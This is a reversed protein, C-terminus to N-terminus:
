TNHFRELESSVIKLKGSKDLPIGEVFRIDLSVDELDIKFMKKIHQVLEREIYNIDVNEPSTKIQIEFKNVKKQIVRFQEIHKNLHFQNIAITFTRPSLTRGNPLFIVSDSRGEIIKMLPLRRGCQCEENTPTGIDGIAYRIFPMAYNFLSTCVIEGSEGATVEEGNEDVFQIIVADADMHYYAKTPCQWAIREFEITAYQDYLPAGLATEIFNRSNADILEAGGFVLKPKITKLGLNKIERALLYLSSSYGDLVDPRIKNIVSLQQPIDHFVSVFKPSYFGLIKQVRNIESFHSPSTIAVWSHWPKHGCSINARLHKAKRFNDEDLTIFVQLPEGTSGSTLLRRLKKAKFRESIVSNINTKIENKNIIPLKNLDNLSKIDEPKIQAKRFIKHYFPVTDYAHKLIEGLKKVQYKLLKDRPWYARRMMEELYYLPKTYNFVKYGM